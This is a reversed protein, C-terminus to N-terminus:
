SSMVSKVKDLVAKKQIVTFHWRQQNGANPANIAANLIKHLEAEPIQQEKYKRISRRNYIVKLTENM